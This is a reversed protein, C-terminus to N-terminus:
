SRGSPVRHWEGDPDGPLSGTGSGMLTVRLPGQHVLSLKRFMLTGKLLSQHTHANERDPDGALSGTGSAMLNERLPGQHIFDLIEENRM